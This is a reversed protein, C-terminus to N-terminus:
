VFKTYTLNVQRLRLIECMRRIETQQRKLLVAFPYTWVTHTRVLTWMFRHKYGPINGVTQMHSVTFKFCKWASNTPQGWSSYSTGPGLEENTTAALRSASQLNSRGGCFLRGYFIANFLTAYNESEWFRVALIVKMESSQQVEM